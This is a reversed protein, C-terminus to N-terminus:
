ELFLSHLFAVDIKKDLSLKRDQIQKENKKDYDVSYFVIDPTIEDIVVKFKTSLLNYFYNDEKIFNCWFDVFNVTITDLKIIREGVKGLLM